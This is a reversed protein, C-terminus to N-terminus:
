KSGPSAHRAGVCDALADLARMQLISKEPPYALPAIAHLPMRDRNRLSVGRIETM